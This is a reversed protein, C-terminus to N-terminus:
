TKGSIRTVGAETEGAVGVGVIVVVTKGVGGGAERLAEGVLVTVLRDEFVVGEPVECQRRVRFLM